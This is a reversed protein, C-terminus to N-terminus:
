NMSGIFLTKIWKETPIFGWSYSKFREGLGEKTIEELSEGSSKKDQVIKNTDKIMQYFVKLDAMSSLKGHGPILKTEPAFTEIIYELNKLYGTVSGGSHVDIFPFRETFFHDGLHLVKSKTFYVISDGDTHGNPLHSCIIEEDNFEIALSKEYSLTPWAEKPRKPFVKDGRKQVSQLRKKVNKQAIIPALKSFIENGGTHDGHWHTNVLYKIKKNFKEKIATQIKKALPAFQDDIMLVGDKGVSLGINGGAGFAVWVNGAVKELKIEVLDFGPSHAVLANTLILSVIFNILKM